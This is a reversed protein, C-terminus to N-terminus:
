RTAPATWRPPQSRAPYGDLRLQLAQRQDDTLPAAAILAALLNIRHPDPAPAATALPQAHLEYAARLHGRNAWLHRNCAYAALRLLWAVVDDDATALKALADTFTDHVLDDVADRNHVRVWVYRTILDRYLRYLQAFADSSGSKAQHLLEVAQPSTSTRRRGTSAPTTTDSAM